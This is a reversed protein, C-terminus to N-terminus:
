MFVSLKESVLLILGLIGSFTLLPLMLRTEKKVGSLSTFTTSGTFNMSLFCIVSTLLLTNGAYVLINSNFHFVSSYKIVVLSWIIGPILAKLAFMRFPLLPLLASFLITGIILAIFYPITNMFGSIVSQMLDKNGGGILQLLSFFIFILALKKINMVFEIPSVTLRDKLNFRVRKMEDTKNCDHKLFEKIDSAYIPGFIAKFGTYKTIQYASVGPASLQPLIIQNHTVLKKLKFKQIRYIIEETSFTKKGASCWVNVGNTDIVLVWLNLGKLEIRLTDVTLKYNATVLVPSEEDPNGIAYIGPPICYDDRGIGLRVKINSIKDTQTLETSLVNIQGISTEINGTIAHIINKHDIM